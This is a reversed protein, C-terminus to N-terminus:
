DVGVLIFPAWFFPHQYGSARLATRARRLAEQPRLGDRLGQFFQGVLRVSAAQDVSWLSMLVNRAGAHAFAWGMGMVGEGTLAEGLGTECAALVAVQANLDLQLVESFTLYGDESTNAPDTGVQSLVLAPERLYPVQGGLVGHTAFMLYRFDRLHEGRLNHESAANRSLGRVHDDGFDAIAQTLLTETKELPRWTVVSPVGASQSTQATASGGDFTPNVVALLRGAEGAEGSRRIARANTLFTASQAYTIEFDDGVYHPPGSTSDAANERSVLAEFPLLGLIEDPVIILHDGPSCLSLANKLLLDFLRSALPVDTRLDATRQIGEFLCRYQRVTAELEARSVPITMSRLSGDRLLWVFTQDEAVEFEILVEGPDLTVERPGVPQPYRFVAYAPHSRRLEQVFADRAERAQAIDADVRIALEHADGPLEDRQRSLADLRAVVARERAALETPIGPDVVSRASSELLRRAKTHEAWRLAEAADAVKLSSRVMGEYAEARTFVGGANGSLFYAKGQADLSTRQDEIRTVAARYSGIALGPQGMGELARGLGVYAALVDRTDGGRGLSGVAAAFQAHAARYDHKALFYSGLGIPWTDQKLIAYAADLQGERLFLGALNSRVAETDPDAPGYAREFIALAHDYLEEAKRFDGELEHLGALENQSEAVLPHAVGLATQRIGLARQYLGRARTTDGLSRYLSGLANLVAATGPAEAGVSREEITLARQYLAEAQRFNGASAYLSALNAAITGVDPRDAGFTEALSLARHYLRESELPQGLRDYVLALNGLTTVLHARGAESAQEDVARAQEYLDKAGEYDSRDLALSALGSTAEAWALNRGATSTELRGLARRYFEEAHGYDRHQQYMRGMGILIPAIQPDRADRKDFISLARQYLDCARDFEGHVDYFKAVRSLSAAFQPDDPGQVRHRIDLARLYTTEARNPDAHSDYLPALHELADAIALPNTALSKERAALVALAEELIQPSRDAASSDDRPTVYPSPVASSGARSAPGCSCLILSFAAAGIAAVTPRGAHETGARGGGFRTARM